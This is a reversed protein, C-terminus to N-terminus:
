PTPEKPAHPGFQEAWATILRALVDIRTSVDEFRPDREGLRKLEVTVNRTTHERVLAQRLVERLPATELRRTLDEIAAIEVRLPRIDEDFLARLPGAPEPPPEDLPEALYTRVDDEAGPHAAIFRPAATALAGQARTLAEALFAQERAHNDTQGPGSM